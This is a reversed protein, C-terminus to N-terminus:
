VVTLKLFEAGIGRAGALQQLEAFGLTVLREVQGPVSGPGGHGAGNEIEVFDDGLFLRSNRNKRIFNFFSLSILSLVINM